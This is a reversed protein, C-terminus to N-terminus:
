DKACTPEVTNAKPSALTPKTDKRNKISLTIRADMIDGCLKALTPNARSTDSAAEKPRDENKLSEARDPERSLQKPRIRIAGKAGGRSLARIPNKDNGLDDALNPKGSRNNSQACKSKM